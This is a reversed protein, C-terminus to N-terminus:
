GVLGNDSVLQGFSILNTDFGDVLYVNHLILRSTLRVTGQQSALVNPGTPLKVSVPFISRIDELCEVQRTMHRTTGTDLVWDYSGIKGSLTETKPKTGVMKQIIKWQEDSIGTLGQRDSETLPVPSALAEANEGVIQTSNARPTSGRGRGSFGRGRGSSTSPWWEPFGVVKFCSHAEHGMKGCVSCKRSPDRNTPHTSSQQSNNAPRTSDCNHGSVNLQSTFSM